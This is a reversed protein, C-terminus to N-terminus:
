LLYPLFTSWWLCLTASLFLSRLVSSVQTNQNRSLSPVSSTHQKLWNYLPSGLFTGSPSSSMYCSWLVSFAPFVRLGRPLWYFMASIESYNCVFYSCLSSPSLSLSHSFISNGCLLTARNFFVSKKFWIRSVFSKLIKVKFVIFVCAANKLLWRHTHMLNGM